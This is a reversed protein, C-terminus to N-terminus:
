FTHHQHGSDATIIFNCLMYSGGVQDLHKLIQKSGFLFVIFHDLL